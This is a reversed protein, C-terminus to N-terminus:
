KKLSSRNKFLPRQDVVKGLEYSVPRVIAQTIKAALEPRAFLEITFSHERLHLNRFEFVYKKQAKEIYHLFLDETISKKYPFWPEHKLSNSIIIQQIFCRWNPSICVHTPM